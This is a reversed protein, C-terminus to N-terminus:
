DLSAGGRGGGQGRRRPLATILTGLRVVATRTAIAALAVTPNVVPWSQDHYLVHDWVFVGDWGHEEAAVALEVLVGPDGFEGVNPLGVAYSVSLRYGWVAVQCM